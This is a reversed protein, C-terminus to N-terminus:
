LLKELKDTLVEILENIDNITFSNPYYNSVDYGIGIAILELSPTRNIEKIVEKLHNELINDPNASNTSDDLPAGDSIVCIIKRKAGGAKARSAAWILAEGDINEKLIGEKLALGLNKKSKFWSEQFSKYIIHRTANLRGPSRPMSSNRLWEQKVEGGKWDVTTYGLIETSIQCEELIKSLIDVVIAATKILRGRMSGSNDILFSVSNKIRKIETKQKFINEGNQSAILPALYRGDLWGYEQETLWKDDIKSLLKRRLKNALLRINGRIEKLSNDLQLRLRELEEPSALEDARKIEDYINSYIHYGGSAAQSSTKREGAHSATLQEDTFEEEEGEGKEEGKEEGEEQEKEEKYLQAIISGYEYQQYIYQKLKSLLHPDLNNEGPLDFLYAFIMKSFKELPSIVPYLEYLQLINIKVGPYREAGIYALRWKEGEDLAPSRFKNYLLQRTKPQHELLMFSAIDVIGRESIDRPLYIERGNYHLSFPQPHLFFAAVPHFSQLYKTILKNEM